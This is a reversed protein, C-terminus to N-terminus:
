PRQQQLEGLHQAFLIHALTEVPLLDVQGGVIQSADVHEQVIHVVLLEVDRVAVGQKVRRM